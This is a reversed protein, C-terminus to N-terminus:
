PAQSPTPADGQWRLTDHNIYKAHDLLQIGQPGCLGAGPGARGHVASPQRGRKAVSDDEGTIRLEHWIAFATTSSKTTTWLSSSLGRRKRRRVWRSAEGRGAACCRAGALTSAALNGPGM